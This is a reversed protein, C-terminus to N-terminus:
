LANRGKPDPHANAAVQRHYERSVSVGGMEKSGVHFYDCHECKYVIMKGHARKGHEMRKRSAKADARNKLKAKGTKECRGYTEHFYVSM